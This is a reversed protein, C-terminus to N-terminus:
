RQRRSRRRVRRRRSAPRPLVRGTEHLLWQDRRDRCLAINRTIFPFFPSFFAAAYSIIKNRPPPSASFRRSLRILDSCFPVDGADAEESFGVGGVKDDDADAAPADPPPPTDVNLGLVVESVESLGDDLPVYVKRLIWKGSKFCSNILSSFVFMNFRQTRNKLQGVSHSAGRM